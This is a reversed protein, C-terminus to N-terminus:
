RTTRATTRAPDAFRAIANIAAGYALAHGSAPLNAGVEWNAIAKHDVGIASGVERLSVRAAERIRRAEGSRCMARVAAIRALDDVNSPYIGTM